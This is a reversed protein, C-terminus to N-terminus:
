FRVGARLGFVRPETIGVGVTAEQGPRFGEPASIIQMRDEINRVFVGVFSGGATTYTLNADSRTYSDQKLQFADTINSVLYGSDFRTALRLELSGGAGISWSHAYELMATVDSVKDIGRGSWDSFEAGIPPFEGPAHGGATFDEYSSDMLTVYLKLHDRPTPNWSLENEWGKIEIAALKTFLVVNGEVNTLSSIQADSYDYYFLASNWELSKGFYGKFGLEYATLNEPDYPGPGGTIPDFDNFGGAKYGTAISAYYMRGDTPKYDLGVRWTVKDDSQEGNNPGGICDAPYRCPNGNADVQGPGVAFTGERRVEDKSYRLGVTATLQDSVGYDVQGFIGTSEHDTDNLPNIGPIAAERTPNSQPSSWRHDSESLKEQYWNFGAIWNLRGTQENSLRIEQQNTRATGRYQGWDWNPNPALSQASYTNADYDRLGGLYTLHVAGLSANFEATVNWFSDNIGPVLAVPVGIVTRGSEGSVSSVKVVENAAIGRGTPIFHDLPVLGAGIGNIEGVTGTLFLSLDDTIDFLASLRGTLDDQDNFAPTGNDTPLYGDRDNYAVAARVAVRDGVPLNLVGTARVTDFDGYELEASGGFEPQPRNTIVNIVGGTTSKGYLTGQPGRLVEVREIDFFATGMERPRGVTIGDVNFAIGQDGKSTNDTTTVGRLSLTVGFDGRGVSLNPAVNQLDSVTQVGAAKLSEESLVSLAIPTEQVTTERKLATVVVETLEATAQGAVEQAGAPLATGIATVAMATGGLLTGWVHRNM